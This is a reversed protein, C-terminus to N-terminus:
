YTEIFHTFLKKKMSRVSSNSNRVFDPLQNWVCVFQNRFNLRSAELRIPPPVLPYRHRTPYDHSPQVPIIIGDLSECEDLKVLNYMYKAVILKHIDGLKLISASKFICTGGPFFRSFLNRVIKEHILKLNSGAATCHLMGGWACICYTISSYVCSYYFNKAANFNFYKSLKYSIGSYRSLKSKLQQLHGFYKLDSDIYLGLYRVSRSRKVVDAGILIEPEFDIKRNSIIIYESKAPNLALKNDRCWDLVVQLRTNVHDVLYEIDEHVYTLVTDDAFLLCEDEACLMSLDNSYIDFYTPGGRSGQVVGLSQERVESQCGKFYVVQKRESFYSKILNISVGRVGYRNLKAFLKERSLTDFCASFDLLVCLAFKKNEIAPTVRHILNLAALETNRGPRFGFQNGLLLNHSKLFSNLRNLVLSEIIKSLNSIIAIPRYNSIKNKSGKKYVPIINAIKFKSPFREYYICLNFLKSIFGFLSGGCMRLFKLQLDHISGQKKLGRLIRSIEDPSSPYLVMTNEHYNIVNLYNFSSNPIAENIGLPHSFFYNSFEEAIIKPDYVPNEDVIFFDSNQNVNRRLLSNLIRWNKKANGGLFNLKRVYYEQEAVTLTERLVYCYSKYSSMTIEGNRMLRYWLHKKDICKLIDPCLWPSSARKTGLRKTRIPFYKNLLKFLFDVLYDTYNDVSDCPPDCTSFEMSCNTLFRQTNSESYDRFEINTSEPPLPANIYTAIAYHDAISPQVISTKINFELNHM